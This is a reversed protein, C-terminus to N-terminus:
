LTFNYNKFLSCTYKITKYHKKREKKRIEKDKLYNNSKLVDNVTQTCSISM